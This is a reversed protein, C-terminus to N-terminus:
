PEGMLVVAPEEGGEEDEGTGLGARQGGAGWRAAAAPRPQLICTDLSAAGAQPPREGM